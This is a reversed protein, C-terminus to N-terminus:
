MKTPRVNQSSQKPRERQDAAKSLRTARAWPVGEHALGHDLDGAQLFPVAVLVDQAAHVQRHARALAHHHQSRGARSLRSQDARDITQLRVLASRDPDVPM